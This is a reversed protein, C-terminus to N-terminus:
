EDMWEDIWEDFFLSIEIWKMIKLRMWEDIDNKFEHVLEIQLGM